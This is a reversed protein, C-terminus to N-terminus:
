MVGASNQATADGLEAAELFCSLAVEYNDMKYARFGCVLQGERKQRAEVKKKAKEYGQDAAKQYWELAKDENKETGYGKEYYVGCNYQATPQGQEAAKLFWHLAKKDDRETGRGMGYCAGLENQADADGQEASKGFWYFAKVM